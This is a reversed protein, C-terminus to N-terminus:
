DGDVSIRMSSKEGTATSTLVLRNPSGSGDNVITATVGAKAGNIANRIGELTNNTPDITISKATQSADATFTSGTYKGTAADFT